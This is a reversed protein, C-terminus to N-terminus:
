ASPPQVDREIRATLERRAKRLDFELQLDLWLDASTDFYRGLRLATDAAICRRGRLIESSRARLPIL